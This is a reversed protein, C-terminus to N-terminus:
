VNIKNTIRNGIIDSISNSIYGVGFATLPTLQNTMDLLNYGVIAGIISLLSQYPYDKWYSLFTTKEKVNNRTEEKRINIIEKLFHTTVGLFLMFITNSFLAEIM